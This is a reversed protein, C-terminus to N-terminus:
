VLERKRHVVSKTMKHKRKVFKITNVAIINFFPRAHILLLMAYNWKKDIKAKAEKANQKVIHLKDIIRQQQEKTNDIILHSFYYRKILKSVTKTFGLNLRQMSLVNSKYLEYFKAYMQAEAFLNNEITAKTVNTTSSNTRQRYYYLKNKIFVGKKVREFIRLNFFIDESSIMFIDPLNVNKIIKRKYLKNFLYGPIRAGKPPSIKESIIFKILIEKRSLLKIDYKKRNNQKPLTDWFLTLGCQVFDADSKHLVDQMIELM